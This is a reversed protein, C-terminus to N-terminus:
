HAPMIAPIIRALPRRIIELPDLKAAKWMIQWALPKESMRRAREFIWRSAHRRLTRRGFASWGAEALIVRALADMVGVMELSEKLSIHQRNWLYEPIEKTVPM